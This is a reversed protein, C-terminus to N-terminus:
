PATGKDTIKGWYTTKIGTRIIKGPNGVVLSNPPIDKTVVTGAGIVCNDGVKLGPMIISRAGIQCFKGIYTDVHVGRIYDHTLVVADFSIATGEGIHIGRPYTRDLNVKLSILTDPHIDMGWIKVLYLRRLDIVTRRLRTRATALLGHKKLAQAISEQRIVTKSKVVKSKPV